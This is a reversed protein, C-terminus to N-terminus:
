VSGSGAPDDPPANGQASPQTQQLTKLAARVISERETDNANRYIAAADRLAAIAEENRGLQQLTFGLNSLAAARHDDHRHLERFTREADQFITVAEEFRGEQVLAGGLNILAVGESYRAGTQRHLKVADQLTTIAEGFREAQVLAIGLNAMATGEGHLDGTKRYGQMADQLLTIAEEFRGVQALTSGLNRLVVAEGREDQLRRAARVAIPGLAIIDDFRQRLLMVHFLARPLNLAVVADLMSGSDAAQTAAILNQYEADLWALAGKRNAFGWAAPDAIGPDLHASAASAAALYYLLLVTSVATRNDQVAQIGGHEDAFLWLLTHLRWRGTAAGREVLHAQALAELGRAAVPQDQEYLSSLRRFLSSYDVLSTGATLEKLRHVVTPGDAVALAAAAPTSIDPGPSVSLLRFLRAQSPDLRQYALDFAARLAADGRDSEDASRRRAQLEGLLAALPLGPDAALLAAIIDLALPLRGCLDAISAAEGPHDTIRTDEPRAARLAQDLMAVAVEASLVDQNADVQAQRAAERKALAAEERQRDGIARYARAAGQLVSVAEGFQGM